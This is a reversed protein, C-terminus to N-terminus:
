CWKADSHISADITERTMDDPHLCVDRVTFRLNNCCIENTGDTLSPAAWFDSIPDRYRSHAHSCIETNEAHPHCHCLEHVKHGELFFYQWDFFQFSTPFSDSVSHLISSLSTGPTGTLLRIWHRYPQCPVWETRNEQHWESLTDKGWQSIRERERERERVCVCVFLIQM